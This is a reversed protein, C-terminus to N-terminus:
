RVILWSRRNFIERFSAETRWLLLLLRTTEGTPVRRRALKAYYLGLNPPQQETNTQLSMAPLPKAAAHQKRVRCNSSAVLGLQRDSDFCFDLRSSRHVTFDISKHTFHRMKIEPIIKDADSCISLAWHNSILHASVSDYMLLLLYYRHVVLLFVTRRQQLAARLTRTSSILFHSRITIWMIVIATCSRGGDDGLTSGFVKTQM